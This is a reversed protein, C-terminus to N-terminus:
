TGPLSTIKGSTAECSHPVRISTDKLWQGLRLVLVEDEQLWWRVWDAIRTFCGIPAPIREATCEGTQWM